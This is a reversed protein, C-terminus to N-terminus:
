EQAGQAARIQRRVDGYDVVLRSIASCDSTPEVRDCPPALGSLESAARSQFAPAYTYHDPMVTSVPVPHPDSSGMGCATLPLM